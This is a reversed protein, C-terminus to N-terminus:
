KTLSLSKIQLPTLNNKQALRSADVNYSRSIAYLTDSEAVIHFGAKPLKVTQGPILIYPPRLKNADIVARIEVNNKRAISYLTDNKEVTVKYPNNSVINTKAPSNTSHVVINAPEQTCSFVLMSLCILSIHFLKQKM